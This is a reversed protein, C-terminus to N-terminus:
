ITVIQTLPVTNIKEGRDVPSGVMANTEIETVNSNKGLLLLM